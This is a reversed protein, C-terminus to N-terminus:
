EEKLSTQEVRSELEELRAKLSELDKKSVGKIAGSIKELHSIGKNTASDIGKLTTRIRRKVNRKTYKAMVRGRRVFSDITEKTLVMVGLGLFFGKKVLSLM